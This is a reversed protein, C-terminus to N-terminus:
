SGGISTVTALPPYIMPQGVQAEAGLWFYKEKNMVRQEIGLAKVRKSFWASNLTHFGNEETWARYADYMDKCKIRKEKGASCAHDDLFQKVPEATELEKQKESLESLWQGVLYGRELGEDIGKFLAFYDIANIASWDMVGRATAEYFRRMGSDNILLGVSTNSTGIFSCNQPVTSVVNSFLARASVTDATVIKKLVEVSAKKVGAMEDLFGVVNNGLAFYNRHDELFPADIDIAMMKVPSFLSKIATSKGTGHKGGVLVPMVHHVVPRGTLKRKVLWLWHSFVAIDLETPAEITAALWRELQEMSTLAFSPDYALQDRTALKTASAALDISESLARMLNDDKIRPIPKAKDDALKAQKNAEALQEHYDLILSNEISKYTRGSPDELLGNPTIKIGNVQLWRSVYLRPNSLLDRSEMKVFTM